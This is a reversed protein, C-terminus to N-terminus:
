TQRHEYENFKAAAAPNYLHIVKVWIRRNGETETDTIRKTNCRRDKENYYEEMYSM